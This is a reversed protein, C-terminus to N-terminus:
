DNEFIYPVAAVCDPSLWPRTGESALSLAGPNPLLPEGCGLFPTAGESSLTAGWALLLQHSLMSLSSCPIREGELIRHVLGCPTVLLEAQNQAV